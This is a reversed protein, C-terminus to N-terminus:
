KADPKAEPKKDAAPKKGAAEKKKAEALDKMEAKNADTLLATIDEKEKKEIANIEALAKKHIADIKSKQDDSLTKLDAWPKVLKVSKAEAPKADKDAAFSVGSFAFASGLALAALINRTMM